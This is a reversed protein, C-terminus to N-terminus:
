EDAQPARPCCDLRTGDPVRNSRDSVAEGTAQARAQVLRGLELLHKLYDTPHMERRLEDNAEASLALRLRSFEREESV